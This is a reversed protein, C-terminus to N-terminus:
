RALKDNRARDKGDLREVMRYGNNLSLLKKVPGTNGLM